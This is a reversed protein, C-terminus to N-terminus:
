LTVELCALAPGAWGARLPGPWTPEAHIIVSAPVRAPSLQWEQTARAHGSGTADPTVDLWIENGRNAYVPDNPYKEPEPNPVQRLHRGAAGPDAPDCRGTHVNAGYERHPDLGSVELRLHTRGSTDLEVDLRGVARRGATDLESGLYPLVPGTTSVEVPRVIVPSAVFVGVALAAVAVAVTRTM